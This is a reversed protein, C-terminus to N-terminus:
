KRSMYYFRNAFQGILPAEWEGDMEDDRFCFFVPSWEYPFIHMGCM